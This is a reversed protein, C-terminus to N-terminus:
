LQPAFIEPPDAQKDVPQEDPPDAVNPIEVAPDIAPPDSTQEVTAPPSLAPDPFLSNREIFVAIIAAAFMVFTVIGGLISLERWHMRKAENMSEEHLRKTEAIADLRAKDVKASQDERWKQDDDSCKKRWEEQQKSMARFDALIGM